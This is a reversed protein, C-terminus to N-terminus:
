LLPLFAQLLNATQGMGCREYRRILDQGDIEPKQFRLRMTRIAAVAEADGLDLCDACFDDASLCTIGYRDLTVAPFDKLNNSVIVGARSMIAAALVHRDDPDPLTLAAILQADVEVMGEPFAITMRNRQRLATEPSVEPNARPLVRTFEDLTVDSWRARYFGAEALTLLTNRVLVAVLVDTDLVATFRDARHSM